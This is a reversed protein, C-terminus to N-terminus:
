ELGRIHDNYRDNTLILGNKDRAYKIMYSDDYNWNPVGSAYGKNKMEILLKVDDPLKNINNKKNIIFIYIYM